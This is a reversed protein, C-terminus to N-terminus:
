EISAKVQKELDAIGDFKKLDLEKGLSNLESSLDLILELPEAEFGFMNQDFQTGILLGDNEMGICWNEMFESLRIETVQYKKWGDKICSKARAKEAWFCIMGAPEGNEDDYHVSSSTAFGKKNKLGYVIETECITKIFKKHRNKVTIHNQLM